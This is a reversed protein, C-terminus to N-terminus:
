DHFHDHLEKLELELEFVRLRAEEKDFPSLRLAEQLRPLYETFVSDYYCTLSYLAYGIGGARENNIGLEKALTMTLQSSGETGMGTPAPSGKDVHNDLIGM